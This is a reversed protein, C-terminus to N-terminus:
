DCIGQAACLHPGNVYGPGHFVSTKPPVAYHAASDNGFGRAFARHAVHQRHHQPVSRAALRAHQKGTEPSTSSGAMADATVVVPAVITAVAAAFLISRLM